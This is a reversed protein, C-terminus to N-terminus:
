IPLWRRRGRASAASELYRRYVTEPRVTAPELYRLTNTTTAIDHQDAREEIRYDGCHPVRSGYEAAGIDGNSGHMHIKGCLPCIIFVHIPDVAIAHATWM